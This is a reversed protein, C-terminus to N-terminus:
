RMKFKWGTRAAGPSCPRRAEALLRHYVHTRENPGLTRALEVGNGRDQATLFMAHESHTLQFEYEM